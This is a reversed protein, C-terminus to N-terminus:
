VPRKCEAKCNKCRFLEGKSKQVVQVFTGERCVPCQSVTKIAMQTTADYEVPGHKETISDLAERNLKDVFLNAYNRTVKVFQYKRTDVVELQGSNIPSLLAMPLNVEVVELPWGPKIERTEEDTHQEVKRRRRRRPMPGWPSFMEYYSESEDDNEQPRPGTIMVYTDVKFDQPRM